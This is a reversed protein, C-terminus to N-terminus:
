FTSNTEMVKVRNQTTTIDQETVWVRQDQIASLIDVNSKYSLTDYEGFNISSAAPANGLTGNKINQLQQIGTAFTLGAMAFATILNGPWPVGSQIGSMFASLTGSGVDIVGQMYRLKKYKASNEDYKEMEAGILSTMQSSLSQYLNVYTQAIEARRRTKAEDIEVQKDALEKDLQLMAANKEQEILLTQDADDKHLELQQNYYNEVQEKLRQLYTQQTELNLVDTNYDTRFKNQKSMDTIAKESEEEYKSYLQQIKDQRQNYYENDLATMADYWAKESELTKQQYELYDEYVKQNQQNADAKEKLLDRHKKDEEFQQRAYKLQLEALKISKESEANKDGRSRSEQYEREIKLERNTRIVSETYDKQTKTIKDWADAYSQVADALEKMATIQKNYEEVVAKQAQVEKDLVSAGSKRKLLKELKEKEKQLEKEFKEVSDKDYIFDFTIGYNRMDGDKLADKFQKSLMKGIGKTEVSRKVKDLLIETESYVGNYRMKLEKLDFVEGIVNRILEKIEKIIDKFAKVVGSNKPTNKTQQKSLSSVTGATLKEIEKWHKEQEAVLEAAEKLYYNETRFLKGIAKTRENLANNRAEEEKALLEQIKQKHYELEISTRLNLNYERLKESNIELEGTVKNRAIVEDNALKNIEKALVEKEKMSTGEATYMRLLSEMEVRQTETETNIENNMKQLEAAEKRADNYASIWKSIGYGIGAVIASLGLFIPNLKAFNLISKLGNPVTKTFFTKFGSGIKRLIPERKQIGDGLKKEEDALEETSKANAKKATDNAVISATEANEAEITEEIQRKYYEEQFTQNIKAEKAKELITIQEEINKKDEQYFEKIVQEGNGLKELYDDTISTLEENLDKLENEIQEPSMAAALGEMQKKIEEAKNTGFYQSFDSSALAWANDIYQVADITGDKLGQITKEYEAIEKKISEAFQPNSEALHQSIQLTEKNILDQYYSILNDKTLDKGVDVQAAKTAELEKLKLLYENAADTNGKKAEKNAILAKTEEDIAERSKDVDTKGEKNLRNFEKAEENNKHMKVTNEALAGAEALEAGSAGVSTLITKQRVDNFGQFAVTLGKLAKTATDIAGLGQILAMLAQIKKMAEQAEESDAGMLVMVSNIGSIAGIVGASVKTLSSLTAGLDKNSYRMAENIEIQKQNTDALKKAVADYEATGKELQAMENKLEKIQERLTKVNKQATGTQIDLIKTKTTEAM